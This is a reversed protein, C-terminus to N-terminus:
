GIFIEIQGSNVLYVVLLILALVCLSLTYIFKATATRAGFNTINSNPDESNPVEGRYGCNGCKIYKVSTSNSEEIPCGCGPCTDAKDSIEKGCESCKILSM